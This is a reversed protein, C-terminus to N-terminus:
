FCTMLVKYPLLIKGYFENAHLEIDIDYMNIIYNNTLM